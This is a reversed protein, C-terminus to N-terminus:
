FKYHPFFPSNSWDRSFKDLAVITSDCDEIFSKFISESLTVACIGVELCAMLVAKDRIGAGMIKGKFNYAKKMALTQLIIKIPDDGNDAIRGLYFALYDCGAKFALFAQAPKFIATALIKIGKQSLRYIAQIGNKTVPIKVLIKDSIASLIEAEKCMEEVGDSLVQIAVFGDSAKLLSNLLEKPPIKSRSIISPNTTVGEIIGYENASIVFDVDASDLWLEM